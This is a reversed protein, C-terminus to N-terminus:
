ATRRSCWRGVVAQAARLQEQDVFVTLSEVVRPLASTGKLEDLIVGRVRRTAAQSLSIAPDPYFKFASVVTQRRRRDESEFAVFAHSPMGDTAYFRV